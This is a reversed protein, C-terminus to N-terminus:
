DNWKKAYSNFLFSFFLLLFFEYLIVLKITQKLFDNENTLQEPFSNRVPFAEREVMKSSSSAIGGRGETGNQRNTQYPRSPSFQSGTLSRPMSPLEESWAPSKFEPYNFSLDRDDDTSNPAPPPFGLSSFQGTQQFQQQRSSTGNLQQQLTFLQMQYSEIRHHLATIEIKQNSIEKEKEKEKEQQEKMGKEIKEITKQLEIQEQQLLDYRIQLNEKEKQNKENVEKWYSIDKELSLRIELLKESFLKENNEIKMQLLLSEKMLQDFRGQLQEKEKKLLCNEDSLQQNTNILLQNQNFSSDLEIRKESLKLLFTEKEQFCDKLQQSQQNVKEFFSEKENILRQKEESFHIMSENKGKELFFSKEKERSLEENLLSIKQQFTQSDNKLSDNLETNQQQLTLLQFSFSKEKILTENLSESYRFDLLQYKEKLLLNEQFYKEKENNTDNLLKKFKINENQLFTLRKEINEVELHIENEKEQLKQEQLLLIEEFSITM